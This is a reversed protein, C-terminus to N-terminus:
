ISNARCSRPSTKLLTNPSRMPSRATTPLGTRFDTIYSLSYRVPWVRQVIKRKTRRFDRNRASLLSSSLNPLFNQLFVPLFTKKTYKLFWFDYVTNNQKKFNQYSVKFFGLYTSSSTRSLQDFKKSM